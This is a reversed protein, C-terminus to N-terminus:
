GFEAPYCTFLLMNRPILEVGVALPHHGLAVREKPKVEIIYVVKSASSGFNVHYYM